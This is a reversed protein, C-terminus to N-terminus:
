IVLLLAALFFFASAIAFWKADNTKTMKNEGNGIVVM